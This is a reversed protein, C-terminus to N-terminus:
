MSPDIPKGEENLMNHFKPETEIGFFNHNSVLRGIKGELMKM